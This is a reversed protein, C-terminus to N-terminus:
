KLEKKKEAILYESMSKDTNAKDYAAQMNEKTITEVYEV